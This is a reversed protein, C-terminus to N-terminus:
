PLESFHLISGFNESSVAQQHIIQPHSNHFVRCTKPSARSTKHLPLFTDRAGRLIHFNGTVVPLPSMNSKIVM